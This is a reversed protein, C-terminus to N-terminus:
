RQFPPTMTQSLTPTQAAYRCPICVACCVFCSLAPTATVLQWCYQRGDCSVNALTRCRVLVGCQVRRPMGHHLGIVIRLLMIPPMAIATTCTNIPLRHGLRSVYFATVVGSTGEIKATVEYHGYMNFGDKVALRTGDMGEQLLVMQPEGDEATSFEVHDENYHIDFSSPELAVPALRCM